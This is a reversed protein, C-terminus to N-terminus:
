RSLPPTANARALPAQYCARAGEAVRNRPDPRRALVRNRTRADKLSGTGPGPGRHPLTASWPFPHAPNDVAGPSRHAPNDV